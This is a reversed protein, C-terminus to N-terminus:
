PNSKRIRLEMHRPRGRFEFAEKSVVKYELSADAQDVIKDGELIDAQDTFMLWDKGFNGTLDESYSDELPQIHCRVGELYTEYQETDNDGAVLRLVDVTRTYHDYIVDHVEQVIRAGESRARFRVM